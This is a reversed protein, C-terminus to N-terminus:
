RGRGLRLAPRLARPGNSRERSGPLLPPRAVRSGLPALRVSEAGLLRKAERIGTQMAGDAYGFREASTAEGAFLVRGAVPEGLADFDDPHRAERHVFSYAGRTYPDNTWDTRMSFTPEPVSAGFLERLIELVRAEVEPTSMTAIKRAFSGGSLMALTPEGVVRSLDLWLPYELREESLYLFHDREVLWFAEPFHLAVKEFHGFGMREILRSKEVPLRPTFEIAGAKLCGLPLTILVHSGRHTKGRATTVAVGSSDFSVARVADGRRIDLGRGMPEVLRTYGGIPFVDEGEYAIGSNLYSALSEESTSSACIQEALFSIAFDARRRRDGELMAIEDLYRVIAPELATGPPFAARLEPLADEFLVTQVLADLLDSDGLWGTAADYGSLNPIIEDNQGFPFVGVGVQDAWRKMPNGDPTHIWSCGLDVPVGAVDATWARGGIRDRAELVLVDIGAHALANAAALGAFGAGIVIMRDPDGVLGGPVDRNGDDYEPAAAARVATTPALLASAGLGLLELLRRRSLAFPSSISEPRLRRTSRVSRARPM